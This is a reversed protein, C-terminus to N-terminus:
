KNVINHLTSKKINYEKDTSIDKIADNISKITEIKAKNKLKDFELHNEIKVIRAGLINWSSDNCTSNYEKIFPRHLDKEIFKQRNISEGYLVCRKWCISHLMDVDGVFSLLSYTLLIDDPDDYNLSSWGNLKKSYSLNSITWLLIHSVYAFEKKIFNNLVYEREEIKDFKTDLFEHFIAVIAVLTLYECGYMKAYKISERKIDIIHRYNHAKDFHHEYKKVIDFAKDFSQRLFYQHAKEQKYRLVISNITEGPLLYVLKERLDSKKNNKALDTIWKKNQKALNIM